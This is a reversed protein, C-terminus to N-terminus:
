WGDRGEEGRTELGLRQKGEKRMKRELASPSRQFRQGIGSMRRPLHLSQRSTNPWMKRSSTPASGPETRLSSPPNSTLSDRNRLSISFNLFLWVDRSRVRSTLSLIMKQKKEDKQYFLPPPPSKFLNFYLAMSQIYLLYPLTPRDEETYTQRKNSRTVAKDM